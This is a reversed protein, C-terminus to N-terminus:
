RGASCPTVAQSRWVRSSPVRVVCRPFSPLRASSERTAVPFTARPVGGAGCQYRGCAFALCCVGERHEHPSNPSAPIPPATRSPPQEPQNVPPRLLLWLRLAHLRRKRVEYLARTRPCRAPDKQAGHEHAAAHAVCLAAAMTGLADLMQLLYLPVTPRWMCWLEDECSRLELRYAHHRMCAGLGSAGLFRKRLSLPLPETNYFYSKAGLSCSGASVTFIDV